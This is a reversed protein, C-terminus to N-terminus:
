AFRTGLKIVSYFWHVNEMSWVVAMFWCLLIFHGKFFKSSFGPIIDTPYSYATRRNQQNRVLWDEKINHSLVPPRKEHGESMHQVSRLILHTQAVVALLSVPGFSMNYIHMEWGKLFWLFTAQRSQSSVIFQYPYAINFCMDFSTSSHGFTIDSRFHHPRNIFLM